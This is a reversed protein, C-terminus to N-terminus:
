HSKGHEPFIQHACENFIASLAARDTKNKQLQASENELQQVRAAQLRLEDRLVTELLSIKKELIRVQEGFLLDRVRNISSEENAENENKIPLVRASEPTTMYVERSLVRAFLMGNAVDIPVNSSQISLM